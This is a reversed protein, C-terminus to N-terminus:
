SAQDREPWPLRREIDNIRDLARAVQDGLSWFALYIMLCIAASGWGASNKSIAENLLYLVAVVGATAILQKM